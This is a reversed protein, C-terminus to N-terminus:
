SHQSPETFFFNRGIHNSQQAYKKNELVGDESKQGIVSMAEDSIQTKIDWFAQELSVDVSFVTVEDEM